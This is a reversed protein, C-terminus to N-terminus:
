KVSSSEPGGPDLKWVGARTEALRQLEKATDEVKQALKKANEFDSKKLAEEAQTLILMANRVYGSAGQSLGPISVAKLAKESTSLSERVQKAAESRDPYRPRLQPACHGTHGSCSPRPRPREAAEPKTDSRRERSARVAQVNPTPRSRRRCNRCRSRRPTLCRRRSSSRTPPAPVELTPRDPSAKASATACASAIGAGALVM